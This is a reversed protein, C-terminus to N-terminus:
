PVPGAEEQPQYEAETSDPQKEKNKPLGETKFRNTNLSQSVSLFDAVGQSFSTRPAIYIFDYLCENKSVLVVGIRIPIGDVNGNQTMFLANRGDIKYNAKRIPKGVIIGKTLSRYSDELDRDEFRKKCNSDVYIVGQLDANYWARDAGGEKVEKWGKDPASVRYIRKPPQQKQCGLILSLWLLM